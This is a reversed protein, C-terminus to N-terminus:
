NIYLLYELTNIPINKNKFILKMYVYKGKIVNIPTVNNLLTIYTELPCNQSVDYTCQMTHRGGLTLDNETVM